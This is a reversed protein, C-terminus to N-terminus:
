CHRLTGRHVQILYQWACLLLQLNPDDVNAERSAKVLTAIEGSKEMKDVDLHRGSVQLVRLLV